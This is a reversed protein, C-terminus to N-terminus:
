CRYKRRAKRASPIGVQFEKFSSIRQTRLVMLGVLGTDGGAEIVGFYTISVNLESTHVSLWEPTLILIYLDRLYQTACYRASKEVM